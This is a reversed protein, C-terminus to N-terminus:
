SFVGHVRHDRHYASPFGVVNDVGFLIAVIV